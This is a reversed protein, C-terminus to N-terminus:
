NLGTGPPWGKMGHVRLEGRGVAGDGLYVLCTYIKPSPTLSPPKVIYSTVHGVKECVWSVKVYFCGCSLTHLIHFYSHSQNARPSCPMTPNQTAMAVKMRSRQDDPNVYTMVTPRGVM